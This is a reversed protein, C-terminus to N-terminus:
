GWPRGRPRQQRSWTGSGVLHSRTGTAYWNICGHMHHASIQANTAHGMRSVLEKRPGRLSCVNIRAHGCWGRAGDITRSNLSASTSWVSPVAQSPPSIHRPTGPVPCGGVLVHAMQVPTSATSTEPGAVCARWAVGWGGECQPEVVAWLCSRGMLSWRVKSVAYVCSPGSAPVVSVGRSECARRFGSCCKTM